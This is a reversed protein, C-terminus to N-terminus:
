KLGGQSASKEGSPEERRIVMRKMEKLMVPVQGKNTEQRCGLNM